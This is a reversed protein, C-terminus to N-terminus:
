FDSYADSMIKMRITTPRNVGDDNAPLCTFHFESDKRKDCPKQSFHSKMTPLIFRLVYLVVRFYFLSLISHSAALASSTSFFFSLHNSLLASFLLCRCCCGFFFVRFMTTMKEAMFLIPLRLSTRDFIISIFIQASHFHLCAIFVICLSFSHHLFFVIKWVFYYDRSGFWIWKEVCHERLCESVLSSCTRVCWANFVGSGMAMRFIQCM